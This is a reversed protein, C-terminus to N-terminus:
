EKEGWSFTVCEDLTCPDNYMFLNIYRRGDEKKSVIRFDVDAKDAYKLIEKLYYDNEKIFEYIKSELQM